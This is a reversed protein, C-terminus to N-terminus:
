VRLGDKDTRGSLGTGGPPVGTGRVDEGFLPAGPTLLMERRVICSCEIEETLCHCQALVPVGREDTCPARAISAPLRIPGAGGIDEHMVCCAPLLLRSQRRCVPRFPVVETLCQCQALV